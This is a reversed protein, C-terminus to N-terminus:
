EFRGHHQAQRALTLRVTALGSIMEQTEPEVGVGVSQVLKNAEEYLRSAAVFDMKDQAAKAEALTKRLMIVAAQRRVAEDTAIDAPAPQAMLSASSAVLFLLGLYKAARMM